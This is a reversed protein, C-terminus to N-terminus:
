SQDDRDPDEVRLADWKLFADASPANAVGAAFVRNVALRMHARISSPVDSPGTVSAVVDFWVLGASISNGATHLYASSFRSGNADPQKPPSTFVTPLRREFLLRLAATLLARVADRPMGLESQLNAIAEPTATASALQTSGTFLEFCLEGCASASERTELPIHVM